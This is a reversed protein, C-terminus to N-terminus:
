SAELAALWLSILMKHNTHQNMSERLKTDPLRSITQKGVEWSVM